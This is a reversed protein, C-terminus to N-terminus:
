TSSPPEQKKTQEIARRMMERLAESRNKMRNAFRWNDLEEAEEPTLLIPIRVDRKDSADTMGAQM